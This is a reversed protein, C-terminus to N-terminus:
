GGTISRTADALNDAVTLLLRHFAERDAAALDGVTARDLRDWAEALRPRLARGEGTLEFLWMRGDCASRTRRVFGARTLSALTRHMTPPEVGLASALEVQSRGDREWLLHLVGEQGPHLGLGGLLKGALYRHRRAVQIIAYNLDVDFHAM